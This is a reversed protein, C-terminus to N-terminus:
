SWKQSIKTFTKMFIYEYFIFITFLVSMNQYVLMSSINYSNM